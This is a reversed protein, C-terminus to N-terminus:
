LAVLGSHRVLRSGYPEFAQDDDREKIYSAFHPNRCNHQEMEMARIADQRTAYQGHVRSVSGRAHTFVSILEFKNQLMSRLQERIGNNTIGYADALESCRRLSLMCPFVLSDRNIWSVLHYMENADRVLPVLLCRHKWDPVWDIGREHFLLQFVPSRDLRDKRIFWKMPMETTSKEFAMFYVKDASAEADHWLDLQTKSAPSAM